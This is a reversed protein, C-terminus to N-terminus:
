MAGKIDPNHTTDFSVGQRKLYQQVTAYVFETGKDSQITLPKRDRFLFKLATTISTGANDKLPVSWAYLSFMDIVNLLYKFKHNHISLSSLDALDMEWVDINTVTYPNRPFSKRVPKHLTYTNQGSLWEEVDRKKTKSAKVQNAVSGYGAAHKPDYYVKGLYM